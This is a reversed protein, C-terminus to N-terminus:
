KATGTKNEPKQDGAIEIKSAKGEFIHYGKPGKLRKETGWVVDRKDVLIQEGGGPLIQRGKTLQPAVRGIYMVTGKPITVKCYYERSNPHVEIMDVTRDSDCTKEQKAREDKEESRFNPYYNTLASNMKEYLRDVPRAPELYIHPRDPSGERRSGGGYVRYLVLEKKAEVIRYKGELFSETEERDLKEGSCDKVLKDISTAPFEALGSKEPKTTKKNESAEKLKDLSFGGNKQAVQTLSKEAVATEKKYEGTAAEKKSDPNKERIPTEQESIKRKLRDISVGNVEKPNRALKLERKASPADSKKEPSPTERNRIEM